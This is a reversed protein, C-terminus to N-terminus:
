RHDDLAGARLPSRQDLARLQRVRPPQARLRLHHCRAPAGGPGRVCRPLGPHLRACRLDTWRQPLAGLLYTAGRRRSRHFRRRLVAIQGRVGVHRADPVRSRRAHDAPRAGHQRHLPHSRFPIEVVGRHVHRRGRAGAPGASGPVPDAATDAPCVHGPGDRQTKASCLQWRRDRGLSSGPQAAGPLEVPCHDSRCRAAGARHPGQRAAAHATRWGIETFAM